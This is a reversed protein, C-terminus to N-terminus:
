TEEGALAGVRLGNRIQRLARKANRLGAKSAASLLLGELVSDEIRIEMRLEGYRCAAWFLKEEDGVVDAIGKMRAKDRWTIPRRGLPPRPLPEQKQALVAPEGDVGWGRIAWFLTAESVEGTPQYHDWMRRIVDGDDAYAPDGISWEVFVERDVGAVKASFMLRLWRSFSEKDGGAWGRPDLKLLAEELAPVDLDSSLEPSFPARQVGGSSSVGRKEGMAEKLLWDPWECVPHVEYPYGQRPWWIFYGGDARVDVGLAIRSVSSRLGPAHRFLLHVGDRQTAHARTLPVADFNEEYWRDGGKEPDIDLVDVGSEAGSRV